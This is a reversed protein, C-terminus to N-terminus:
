VEREPLCLPRGHYVVEVDAAATFRRLEPSAGAASIGPLECIDTHAIVCCFLPEKGRLREVLRRGGAENHVFLIPASAM